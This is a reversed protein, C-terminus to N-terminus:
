KDEDMKSSKSGRNCITPYYANSIPLEQGFVKGWLLSFRRLDDVHMLNRVIDSACFQTEIERLDATFGTMDARLRAVRDTNNQLIPEVAALRERANTNTASFNQELTAAQLDLKDLRQRNSAVQEGMQQLAGQMQLVKTESSTIRENNPVVFTDLRADNTVVRELKIEMAQIKGDLVSRESSASYVAWAVFGIISLVAILPIHFNEINFVSKPSEKEDSM